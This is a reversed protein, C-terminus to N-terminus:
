ADKKKWSQPKTKKTTSIGGGLVQINEKYKKIKNAQYTLIKKHFFFSIQTSCAISEHQILFIIFNM